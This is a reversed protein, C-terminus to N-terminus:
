RQELPAYDMCLHDLFALGTLCYYWVELCRSLVCSAAACCAPAAPAGQAGSLLLLQILTTLLVLFYDSLIMYFVDASVM